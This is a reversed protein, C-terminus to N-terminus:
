VISSNFNSNTRAWLRYLRLNLKIWFYCYNRLLSVQMFDILLKCLHSQTWKHQFRCLISKSMLIAFLLHRTMIFSFVAVALNFLTITMKCCKNLSFLRFCCGQVVGLPWLSTAKSLVRVHKVSFCLVVASPHFSALSFLM